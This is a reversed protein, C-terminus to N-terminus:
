IAVPGKQRAGAALPAKGTLPTHVVGPAPLLRCDNACLVPWVLSLRNTVHLPECSGCSSLHSLFHRSQCQECRHQGREHERVRSEPASAPEEANLVRQNLFFGAQRNREVRQGTVGVEVVCRLVGVVRAAPNGVEDRGFQAVRGDGRLVDPQLQEPGPAARELGGLGVYSVPKDPPEVVQLRAALERYWDNGDEFDAAGRVVSELEALPLSVPGQEVSQAEGVVWQLLLLEGPAPENGELELIHHRRGRVQNDVIALYTGPRLDPRRDLQRALSEAQEGLCDGPM